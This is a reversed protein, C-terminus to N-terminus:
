KQIVVPGGFTKRYKGVLRQTAMLGHVSATQKLVTTWGVKRHKGRKRHEAYGLMVDTGITDLIKYMWRKASLEIKPYPVICKGLGGECLIEKADRAAVSERKGEIKSLREEQLDVFNQLEGNTKLTRANKLILKGLEKQVMKGWSSNLHYMKLYNPTRVTAGRGRGSDKRLTRLLSEKKVKNKDENVDKNEQKPM